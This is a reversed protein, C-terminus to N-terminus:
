ASNEPQMTRTTARALSGRPQGHYWIASSLRRSFIKTHACCSRRSAPASKAGMEGSTTLLKELYRALIEAESRSLSPQIEFVVDTPKAPAISDIWSEDMRLSAPSEEFSEIAVWRAQERVGLDHLTAVRTELQEFKEPPAHVLAAGSDTVQLLDLGLREFIRGHTGDFEVKEQYTGGPAKRLDTSRKEITSVPVVLAFCHVEKLPDQSSNVVSRVNKIAASITRAKRQWPISGLKPDNAGGSRENPTLQHSENLFYNAPQKKAM